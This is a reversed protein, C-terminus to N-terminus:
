NNKITSVMAPRLVRDRYKYGKQFVNGIAGNEKSDDSTQMIAEHINPDFEGDCAVVEM